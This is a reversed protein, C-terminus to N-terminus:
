VPHISAGVDVLETNKEEFRDNALLREQWRPFGVRHDIRQEPRGILAPVVRHQKEVAIHIYGSRHPRHDAAAELGLGFVAVLPGALQRGIQPRDGVIQRETVRALGDEAPEVPPQAAVAAAQGTGRNNQQGAGRDQPGVEVILKFSVLPELVDAAM